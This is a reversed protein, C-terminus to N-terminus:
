SRKSFFFPFFVQLVPHNKTTTTLLGLSCTECKESGQKLMPEPLLHHCKSVQAIYDTVRSKNPTDQTKQPLTPTTKHTDLTQTM